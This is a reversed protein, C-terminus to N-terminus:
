GVTTVCFVAHVKLRMKEEGNDSESKALIVVMDPTGVSLILGKAGEEEWIM